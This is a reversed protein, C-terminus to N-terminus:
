AHVRPAGFCRAFWRRRSRGLHREGPTLAMWQRNPAPLPDDMKEDDNGDFARDGRVDRPSAALLRVLVYDRLVDQTLLAAWMQILRDAQERLQQQPRSGM